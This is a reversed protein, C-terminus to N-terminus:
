EARCVLAYVKAFLTSCSSVVTKFAFLVDCISDKMQLMSYYVGLLINAGQILQQIRLLNLLLEVKQKGCVHVQKGM